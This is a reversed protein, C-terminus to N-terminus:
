WEGIGLDQSPVYERVTEQEVNPLLAGVATATVVGYAFDIPDPTSELHILKTGFKTEVLGNVVLGVSLGGLAMKARISLKSDDREVDRNARDAVLKGVILGGAYGLQASGNINGAHDFVDFPEPLINRAGDGDKAFVLALCSMALVGYKISAHSVKNSLKEVYPM